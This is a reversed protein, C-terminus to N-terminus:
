KPDSPVCDRWSKLFMGSVRQFIFVNCFLRYKKTLDNIENSWHYPPPYGWRVEPTTREFEKAYQHVLGGAAGSTLDNAIKSLAFVYSKVLHIEKQQAIIVDLLGSMQIDTMTTM